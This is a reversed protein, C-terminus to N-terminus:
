HKRRSEIYVSRCRRLFNASVKSISRFPLRDRGIVSECLQRMLDPLPIETLANPRLEVLLMRMEALAGRTMQRLEELRKVGEAPNAEWIIPLVDAILSASFLTQTVADHLERALHTREHNVADQAAKQQLLQNAQSLEETRETIRQELIRRYEADQAALKEAARKQEDINEILAILYDPKGDPDLVRTISAYGISDAM